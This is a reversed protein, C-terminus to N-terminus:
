GAGEKSINLLIGVMALSMMLSSGGKSIFPLSVGTIPLLGLTVGLNMLAQYAFICTIGAALMGGFLDPARAAIRAGRWILIMYMGIVAVMGLVGLEEGIISFIFDTHAMPLYFMKYVGRGPGTGTLGGWAIAEMSRMAQYSGELRLVQDFYSEIRNLKYPDSKIALYLFGLAMSGFIAMQSIRAGGIFLMTFVVLGLFAASSLDPQLYILLFMVGLVIMGPMVGKFMRRIEPAKRSLFDAMYIAIALKAFEVPQFTLGGLNISRRFLRGASSRAAVGLPTFVLLLMLVAAGLLYPYKGQYFRYPVIYAGVMLVIGLAAALLQRKLYYMDDGHWVAGMYSSASYLMVLGVVTLLAVVSLLMLDPLKRHEEATKLQSFIRSKRYEDLPSGVGTLKRFARRRPAAKYGYSPGKLGKNKLKQLLPSRM